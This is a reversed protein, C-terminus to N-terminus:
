PCGALLQTYCATPSVAREFGKSDRGYSGEIIGNSPVVLFVVDGAPPVIAALNSGSTSCQLPAVDPIQRVTLM